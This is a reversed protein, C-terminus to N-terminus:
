KIIQKKYVPYILVAANADRPLFPLIEELERLCLAELVQNEEPALRKHTNSPPNGCRVSRSQEAALNFSIAEATTQQKAETTLDRENPRWYEEVAPNANNKQTETLYSANCLMLGSKSAYNQCSIIENLKAYKQANSTSKKGKEGMSRDSVELAQSM